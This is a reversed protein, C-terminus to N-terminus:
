SAGRRTKLDDNWENPSPRYATIVRVNNGLVDAAFLVHAADGAPQALTLYSPLYKDEPYSEVIEFTDVSGIIAERAVFRGELRMSVHYTWLIRGGLVCSRVFALPDPPLERRGADMPVGAESESM